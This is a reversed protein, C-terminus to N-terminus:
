CGGCCFSALRRRCSESPMRTVVLYMFEVFCPKFHDTGKVRNVFEDRHANGCLKGSRGEESGVNNWLRSGKGPVSDGALCVCLCAHNTM